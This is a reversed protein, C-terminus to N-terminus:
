SLLQSSARLAVRQDTRPPGTAPPHHPPTRLAPAPRERPLAEGIAPLSDAQTDPRPAPALDIALSDHECSCGPAVDGDEHPAAPTGGGHVTHEHECHGGAHAFELSADGDAHTCLVFLRPLGLLLVLAALVATHMSLPHTRRASM